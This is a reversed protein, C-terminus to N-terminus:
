LMWADLVRAATHLPTSDDGAARLAGEVFRRMAAGVGVRGVLLYLLPLCRFWLDAPADDALLDVMRALHYAPGCPPGQVGTRWFHFLELLVTTDRALAATDFRQSLAIAEDFRGMFLLSIAEFIRARLANQP